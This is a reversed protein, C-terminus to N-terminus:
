INGCTKHKHATKTNANIYEGVVEIDPNIKAVEAVYQEHTKKANSACKPCGYGSLIGSPTVDWVNGCKKHKHLTKVNSGKYGGVVEIDPRKIAVDDVYQEHTKGKCKPCGYGSLIHNPRVNWVNGCTKHKHATKIDSGKYEDVVEYNPNKIAVEAIYQEHTKGTCKSCGVVM